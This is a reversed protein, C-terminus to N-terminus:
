KSKGLQRLDLVTPHSVYLKLALECITIRPDAEVLVKLEDNDIASLRGRCEEDELSEDRNRFKQFWGVTQM